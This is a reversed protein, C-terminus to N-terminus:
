LCLLWSEFGVFADKRWVEMNREECSKGADEERGPAGWLILDTSLPGRPGGGGVLAWPGQGRPRCWSSCCQQGRVEGALGQATTFSQERSGKQGSGVPLHQAVSGALPFPRQELFAAALSSGALWLGGLALSPGRCLPLPPSPPCPLSARLEWPALDKGQVRPSSTSGDSSSSDPESPLSCLPVQVWAESVGM